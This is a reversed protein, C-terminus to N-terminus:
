FSEFKSITDEILRVWRTYSNISARLATTDKAEFRLLIKRGDLKIEVRSRPTPSTETEPKLAKLVVRAQRETPLDIRIAAVGEKMM